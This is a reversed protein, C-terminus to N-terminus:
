RDVPIICTIKIGATQQAGAPPVVPRSCVVVWAGGCAALAPEPAIGKVTLVAPMSSPPSPSVIEYESADM